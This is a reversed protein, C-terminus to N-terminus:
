NMSLNEPMVLYFNGFMDIQMPISYALALQIKRPCQRIAVQLWDEDNSNPSNDNIVEAM